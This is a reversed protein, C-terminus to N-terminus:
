PEIVKLIAQAYIRALFDNPHNVNNGTMDRFRKGKEYLESSLRTMDCVATNKYEGELKYLRNIHYRQNKLWDSEFNPIMTGVLLVPTDPCVRAFKCLMERYLAYYNDPDRDGDNMGFALVLLDPKYSLVNEEFTDRAWQTNKGGIATNVYNIEGFRETLHKHIMIPFSDIYPEVTFDNAGSSDCGTTISDGFFLMTPREGRKVKEFFGHFVESRSEPIYGRWECSHTYTVVIQRDYFYNKRSFTFYRQGKLDIKERMRDPEVKIALDFVGGPREWKAPTDRYFELAPTIPLRGGALPKIRGDRVEYDVGETYKIKLDSSCVSEVEDPTFILPASDDEGVLMASENVIRKASWFPDLYEKLDYSAKM